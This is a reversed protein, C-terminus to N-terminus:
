ILKMSNRLRNSQTQLGGKPVDHKNEGDHRKEVVLSVVSYGFQNAMDVHHTIEKETTCTNSVILNPVCARMECVMNYDNWRHAEGLKNRDFRYTGDQLYWYNDAEHVTCSLAQSLTNAFTSKGSGSCGRIIYM